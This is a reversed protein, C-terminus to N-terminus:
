YLKQSQKARIQDTVSWVSWAGNLTRKVGSFWMGTYNTPLVRPSTSVSSEPFLLQPFSYQTTFLVIIAGLLDHRGTWADRCHSIAVGRLLLHAPFPTQAGGGVIQAPRPAQKPWYFTASTISYLNQFRPRLHGELKM